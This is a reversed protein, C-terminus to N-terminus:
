DNGSRGYLQHLRSRTLFTPVLDNYPTNRIPGEIPVPQCVIGKGEFGFSPVISPAFERGQSKSVCLVGTSLGNCEGYVLDLQNIPDLSQESTAALHQLLKISVATYLGEREYEPLTAAETIEAIRLSSGNKLFPIDAIEAIGASVIQDNRRAVALINFPNEVIEVVAARDWSFRQYLAALQNVETEDANTLIGVQYGQAQTRTFVERPKKLEQQQSIELNRAIRELDEINSRRKLSNQGLYVIVPNSGLNGADLPIVAEVMQQLFPRKSQSRLFDDEFIARIQVRTIDVEEVVTDLKDSLQNFSEEVNALTKPDAVVQENYFGKIRNFAGVEAPWLAGISSTFGAQHQPVDRTELAMLAIKYDKISSLLFIDKRSM